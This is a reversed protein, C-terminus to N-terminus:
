KDGPLSELLAKVANYSDKSIKLWFAHNQYEFIMRVYGDDQSSDLNIYTNADALNDVSKLSFPLEDSLVEFIDLVETYSKTSFVFLSVEASYWEYYPDPYETTIGMLNSHIELKQLDFEKQFESVIYDELADMPELQDEPTKKIIEIRSLADFFANSSTIEWQAWSATIETTDGDSINQNEYVVEDSYKLKKFFFRYQESLTYAVINGILLFM